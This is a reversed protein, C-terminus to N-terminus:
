PIGVHAHNCSDRVIDTIGNTDVTLGCSNIQGLEANKPLIRAVENFYQTAVAAAAPSDYSSTSTSFGMGHGDVIDIDVARGGKDAYHLSGTGSATLVGTCRRNLSSIHLTHNQSMALILGLIAPSVYCSADGNANNVIQQYYSSGGTVKGSAVIQKALDQANGTPLSSPGNSSSDVLATDGSANSSEADQDDLQDNIGSDEAYQSFMCFRFTDSTSSSAVCDKPKCMDPSDPGVPETTELCNKIYDTYDTDGNPSSSDYSVGDGNDDIWPQSGDHMYSIVADADFRNDPTFGRTDNSAAHATPTGFLSALDFGGSAPPSDLAAVPKNFQADGLAMSPDLGYQPVCFPDTAVGVAQYDGDNCQDYEGNIVSRAEVTSATNAIGSMSFSSLATPFNALSSSMHVFPPLFTSVLKGAFSNPENVDFASGFYNGGNQANDSFTDYKVAQAKTLPQSGHWKADLAAIAAAGGALANGLRGGKLGDTAVTKVVDKLLIPEAIGVLKGIVLQGGVCAIVAGATDLGFSAVAAVIQTACFVVTAFPTSVIDCVKKNLLASTVTAIAAIGPISAAGHTIKAIVGTDAESGMQYDSQSAKDKILVGQSDYQYGYSDSGTQGFEDQATLAGATAAIQNTTGSDGTAGGGKITDAVNFIGVAVVVLAATLEVKAKHKSEAILSKVACLVGFVNTKRIHSDVETLTQALKAKRADEDSKAQAQAEESTEPPSKNSTHKGRSIHLVTFLKGARRDWWAAVKSKNYNYILKQFAPSTRSARVFDKAVIVKPQGNETYNISRIKNRGFVSKKNETIVQTGPNREEFKTVQKDTM